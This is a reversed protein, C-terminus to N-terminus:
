RIVRRSLVVVFFAMMFAGLFAESVALLHYGPKPVYDGYGVTTFTVVSFYLNEAFSGAGEVAGLHSYLAAYALIVGVTTLFVRWPSEGYSSIYWLFRNALWRLHGELFALWRKRFRATLPLFAEVHARGLAKHALRQIKGRVRWEGISYRSAAEYIGQEAFLKKLLLYVDIARNYSELAESYKGQRALRDGIVEEVVIEDFRAYRLNKAGTLSVGYLKAGRFDASFLNAGSLNAGYLEAGQLDASALTANELSALSLDAHILKAGSLDAGELRSSSLSAHSLNAGSLDSGELHAWALNAHSLDADSLDAHRLNGGELNAKRLNAGSLYAEELDEGSLDAREFDKGGVPEHFPCFASDEAAERPCEKIPNHRYSHVCRM